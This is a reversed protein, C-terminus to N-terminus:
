PPEPQFGKADSDVVLAVIVQWVQEAIDTIHNNMARGPQGLAQWLKTGLQAGSGSGGNQDRDLLPQRRDRM